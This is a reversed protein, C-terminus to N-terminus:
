DNNLNITFNGKEVIDISFRCQKRTSAVLVTYSIECHVPCFYNTLVFKKGVQAIEGSSKEIKLDFPLFDTFASKISITIKNDTDFENVPKIKQVKYDFIGTSSTVKFSVVPESLGVYENEKWYGNITNKKGNISIEFKGQGDKKGRLWNGIFVDGNKYTYKGKGDPLGDKFSGTYTDEGVSKGKGNALGNKCDGTYIGSIKDLLVKCSDAQANSQLTAIFLFTCILLNKM